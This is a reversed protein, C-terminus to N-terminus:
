NNEKNNLEWHIIRHCNACVLICKNLEAMVARSLSRHRALLSSIQYEKEGSMHHFDYVDLVDTKFGCKVCVEGLHLVCERKAEVRDEKSKKAYKANCSDCYNKDPHQKLRKCAICLNEAKLRNNRKKSTQYKCKRCQIDYRYKAKRFDFRDIPKLKGCTSCVQHTPYTEPKNEKWRQLKSEKECSKCRGRRGGKCTNQKYFDEVPKEKGCKRCVKTKM